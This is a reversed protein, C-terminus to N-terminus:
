APGHGGGGPLVGRAPVERLAWAAAKSLLEGRARLERLSEGVDDPGHMYVLGALAEALDPAPLPGALLKQLAPFLEKM